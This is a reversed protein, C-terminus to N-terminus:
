KITLNKLIAQFDSNKELDVQSGFKSYRISQVFESKMELPIENRELFDRAIAITAAPGIIGQQGWSSLLNLFNTNEIYEKGWSVDAATADIFSVNASKGEGVVTVSNLIHSPRWLQVTGMYVNNLKDQHTEKLINFVTQTAAAYHVCEAPLHHMLIKDVPERASAEKANTDRSYSLNRAVIAVAMEVLQKSSIADVSSINLDNLLQPNRTQQEIWEQFLAKNELHLLDLGVEKFIPDESSILSRITPTNIPISPNSEPIRLNEWDSVQLHTDDEMTMEITPVNGYAENIQFHRPKAYDHLPTLTLILLAARGYRNRFIRNKWSTKEKAEEKGKDQNSLTCNSAHGAHDPYECASCFFEQQENKM